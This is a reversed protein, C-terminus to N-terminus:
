AAKRTSRMATDQSVGFLEQYADVIRRYSFQARAVKRAYRGMNHLQKADSKATLIAAALSEADNPEVVWGLQHERVIRAPESHADAVVIVPRGAALMNYLRSPVSVGAMGPVFAILAVDAASLLDPLEERPCRDGVTVNDLRREAVTKQLWDKRAGSGVLLFHIDKEDQLTEAAKVIVDLNHTRGMNGSYQVVFRDAADYQRLIRNQDRAIPQIFETDAWNPIITVPTHAKGLKARVLTEMDRGLVVIQHAGRYLRGVFWNMVRVPLSRAKMFGTATLVDPYVDHILLTCKARRLWCAWSVVFPLLPPNTVVLVDDGRRIRWVANWFVTVCLTLLNIVRLLLNNKNFRTSWCRRIRVGHHTETWAAKVDRAAYTPQGCLVHAPVREALGEAIGTLYHGTSTDEPYYLESVVWIRNSTAETM